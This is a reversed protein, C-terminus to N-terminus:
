ADVFRSPFCPGTKKITSGGRFHCPQSASLSSNGHQSLFWVSNSSSLCETPLHKTGLCSPKPKSILVWKFTLWFPTSVPGTYLPLSLSDPTRQGPLKGSDFPASETLFGDEFYFHHTSHNLFVLAMSRQGGCAGCVHVCADEFMHTQVCLLFPTVRWAVSQWLRTFFM